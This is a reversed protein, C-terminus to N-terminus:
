NRRYYRYFDKKMFLRVTILGFLFGGIHAFWAVGGARSGAQLLQLLFWFGLVLVAPIRILRIFIILIVLTIVNAKPFLLFYAGLVGAIAGSAGVMPVASNVDSLVHAFSAALGCLLYFLLFTLHGVADEVNNGFIWLYLMNGALHFIGGHIFMASFPTFLLPVPSAATVMSIRKLHTLEYPIAGYQFFFLRGGHGLSLQYLFVLCNLIIIGVTIYPTTFTPNEDKLPIM